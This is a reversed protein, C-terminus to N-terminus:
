ELRCTYNLRLFSTTALADLSLALEFRTLFLRLRVLFLLDVLYVGVQSLISSLDAHTFQFCFCCKTTKQSFQFSDLSCHIISCLVDLAVFYSLDEDLNFLSLFRRTLRLQLKILQLSLNLPQYFGRLFFVLM